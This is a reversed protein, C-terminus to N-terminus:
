FVYPVSILLVSGVQTNYIFTYLVAVMRIFIDREPYMSYMYDIHLLKLGPREVLHVTYVLWM